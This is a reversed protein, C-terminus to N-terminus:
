VTNSFISLVNYKYALYRQEASASPRAQGSPWARARRYPIKYVFMTCILYPWHEQPMYSRLSAKQGVSHARGRAFHAASDDRTAVHSLVSRVGVLTKMTLSARFSHLAASYTLNRSRHKVMLEAAKRRRPFHLM